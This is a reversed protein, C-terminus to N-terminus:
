KVKVFRHSETAGGSQISLFYVGAPFDAVEFLATNGAISRSLMLKGNADLIRCVATETAQWNGTLQLQDAVPNPSIVLEFAPRAAIKSRNQVKAEPQLFGQTLQQLDGSPVQVMNVLSMEGISSTVQIGGSIKSTNFGSTLATQANMLTLLAQAAIFLITNKM